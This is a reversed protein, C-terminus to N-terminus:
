PTRNLSAQIDTIAALVKDTDARSLVHDTRLEAATTQATALRGLAVTKQAASLTGSYDQEITNQLAGVVPAESKGGSFLDSWWAGAYKGALLSDAAAVKATAKTALAGTVGCGAAVLLIALVTVVTGIVSWRRM